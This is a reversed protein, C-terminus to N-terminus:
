EHTMYTYVASVTKGEDAPNFHMTGMYPDITVENAGPFAGNYRYAIAPVGGILVTNTNRTDSDIAYYLPNYSGSHDIAKGIRITNDSGNSVITCAPCTRNATWYNLNWDNYPSMILDWRLQSLPPTVSWRLVGNVWFQLVGGVRRIDLASATSFNGFSGHTAPFAFIGLSENPTDVVYISDNSIIFGYSIQGTSAHGLGFAIYRANASNFPTYSISFNGTVQKDGTAWQQPNGGNFIFQNGVYTIDSCSSKALDLGVVGSQALTATIPITAASLDTQDRYARKYYFSYEFSGTTATDKLLGECTVFNYWDGAVFSTGGGDAFSATIGSDLAEATAHITKPTTIATSWASGTWGYSTQGLYAISGGATTSDFAYTAITSCFWGPRFSATFAMGPGVTFAISMDANNGAMLNQSLIDTTERSPYDQCVLSSTSSAELTFNIDYVKIIPSSHNYYSGNWSNVAGSYINLFRTLGAQNKIFMVSGYSVFSTFNTGTGGVSAGFTSVGFSMKSFHSRTHCVWIGGKGGIHGRNFRPNGSYYNQMAGENGFNSASGITSWWVGLSSANVSADYRRVIFIQNNVSEDDAVIYDINGWNGDSIGPSNFPIATTSDYKTWTSVGDFSALCNRGAVWLVNYGRAVGYTVSLDIGVDPTPIATVLLSNVPDIMYLGTNHCALYVKTGIVCVQRIDTFADRFSMYKGTAINYIIIEDQKVAVISTDDYKCWSTLQRIGCKSMDGLLTNGLEPDAAVGGTAMSQNLYLLGHQQNRWDTGGTLPNNTGFFPRKALNYTAAGVVGSSAINIFYMTSYKGTAHLGPSSPTGRNDWTGGLSISGTGQQFNSVDLFPLQSTSRHGLLNQIKTGIDVPTIGNVGYYNGALYGLTTMMVGQYDTLAFSQSYKKRWYTSTAITNGGLSGWGFRSPWCNNEDGSNPTVLPIPNSYTYAYVRYDSNNNQWLAGSAGSMRKIMADYQWEPMDHQNTLPFYVRYYIDFFQTTTQTCPTALRSYAYIRQTYPGSGYYWPDNLWNQSGVNTLLVTSITRTSAPLPLRTSWQTFAPILGNRPFYDPNGNGPIAAGVVSTNPGSNIPVYVQSPSPSMPISAAVITGRMYADGSNTLIQDFTQYTIVNPQIIRDIVELTESDRIVIEIEGKLM